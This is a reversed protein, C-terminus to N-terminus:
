FGLISYIIEMISNKKAKFNCSGTKKRFLHLKYLRNYFRWQKILSKINRDTKFNWLDLKKFIDNLILEMKEKSKIVYSNEIKLNDKDTEIKLSHVKFEAMM